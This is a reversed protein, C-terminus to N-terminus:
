FNTRQRHPQFFVFFHMLGRCQFFRFCSVLLTFFFFRTCISLAPNLRPPALCHCVEGRTVSRLIQRYQRSRAAHEGGRNTPGQKLEERGGHLPGQVIAAAAAATDGRLETRERTVVIVAITKLLYFNSVFYVCACVCM